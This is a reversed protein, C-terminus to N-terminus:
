PHCWKGVCVSAHAYWPFAGARAPMTICSARKLAFHGTCYTRRPLQICTMYAHKPICHSYDLTNLHTHGAAPHPPQATKRNTSSPASSLASIVCGKNGRVSDGATLWRVRHKSGIWVCLRVMCQLCQVCVCVCWCVCVCYCSPFPPSPPKTAPLAM